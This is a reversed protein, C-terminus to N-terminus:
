YSVFEEKKRIYIYATLATVGRHGIERLVFRPLRDCRDLFRCGPSGRGSCGRGSSWSWSLWWGSSGRGSSRRGSPPLLGLPLSTSRNSDWLRSTLLCSDLLCSALLCSNLPSAFAQFGLYSNCFFSLENTENERVGCITNGPVM